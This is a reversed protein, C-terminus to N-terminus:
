GGYDFTWGPAFGQNLYGLGSDPLIVVPREFRHGARVSAVFGALAAGSSAGALVGHERALAVMWGLAADDGVVFMEDVVEPDFVKAAINNGAGRVASVRYPTTPEEGRYYVSVYSGEVDVGIVRVRPRHEKLYRGIGSITGGSGVCSFVADLGGGAQAVIEPGTLRYHSEPNWPDDYQDLLYYRPDAAAIARARGVYSDEDRTYFEPSIEVDAGIAGLLNVKLNDLEDSDSMTVICHYGRRRAHLATAIAMNGSSPVVVAGGPRLRGTAIARDIMYRAPRDKISGTPNASEVKLLCFVAEGDVRLETPRMPTAWTDSPAGALAPDPCAAETDSM